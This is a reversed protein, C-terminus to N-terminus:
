KITKLGPTLYIGLPSIGLKGVPVAMKREHFYRSWSQWYQDDPKEPEGFVMPRYM